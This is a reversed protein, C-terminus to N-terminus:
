AARRAVDSERRRVLLVPVEARRLVGDATSGFLLRGLGTRGHTTMAILDAKGERAGQVIEAVADGRRVAVVVNLGQVRVRDAVGTLYDDAERTLQEVPNVVMRPTAGEIVRPPLTPIVRLLTIELGLPRALSAVFPLVAEALPSGDLPVLVRRAARVTEDISM